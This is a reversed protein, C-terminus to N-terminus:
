FRWKRQHALKGQAKLIPDPNPLVLGFASFDLARQRTELMDTLPTSAM